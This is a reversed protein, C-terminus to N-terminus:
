KYDPVFYFKDFFIPSVFVLKLFYHYVEDDIVQNVNNNIVGYGHHFLFYKLERMSFKAMKM